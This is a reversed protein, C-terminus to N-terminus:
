EVTLRWAQFQSPAPVYFRFWDGTGETPATQWAGTETRAYPCAQWDYGSGVLEGPASQMRYVKGPVSLFDIYCRGNPAKQFVEAYFFDYDLFAFTGARYEDLNSVGDGDFDDGPRIDELSLLEPFDAWSILEWEWEDPLGDSDSDLAATVNVRVIDGPQRAQPVFSWEMITREGRSDSVLITIVAGTTLAQRFYLLSDRADDMPAHLAFNVGHTLSGDITHRIIENTGVRLIVEAGRLYPWGYQDRAQGYFVVMPQPMGAFASPHLRLSSLAAVLLAVFPWPRRIFPRNM